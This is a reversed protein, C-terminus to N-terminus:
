SCLDRGLRTGDDKWCIDGSIDRLWWLNRWLPKCQLAMLRRRTHQFGVIGGGVQGRAKEMLILMSIRVNNNNHIEWPIMKSQDGPRERWLHRCQHLSYSRSPAMTGKGRDAEDKLGNTAGGHLPAMAMLSIFWKSWYHQHWIAMYLQVICM